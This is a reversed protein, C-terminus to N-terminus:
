RSQVPSETASLGDSRLASGSRTFPSSPGPAPQVATGLAVLLGKLLVSFRQFCCLSVCNRSSDHEFEFSCSNAAREDASAREGLGM